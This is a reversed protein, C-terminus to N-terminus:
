NTSPPALAVSVTPSCATFAPMNGGCVSVNASTGALNTPVFLDVQQVGPFGPAPGAYYPQAVFQGDIMASIVGSGSLGTAFIQIISGLAAPHNPGNPSYDQNLVGNQFIGPAFAALAITQPTSAIGNVSVVLETSTKTALATPVVINIQTANSFLIQAPTGDFTVTLGTGAFNSGTITALSGPALPGAVFTAANVASTVAPLPVAPPTAATITLTIPVNRTGALPGADVTITADYTGPTLTGPIADVRVGGNNEGSTPSINLWGSANQYALTATWNLVGGSANHVILYNTQTNSGATATYALSPELVSLSPFYQANCDGLITCDAQPTVSLFRPIPDTATATFVSSVPAFSVNESTQVSAGSFPMLGLFTPFQASEQVNQNADVVEYVALGAGNVLTVPSMADFSVTGSGPAGPTYVPAGGAGNPNNGQVLALLLSSIAGPAYQGGSAPVGFDGGATPEIADSGAIVNPVFIQAGAPFGSYSVLIRTGTDANLGQFGSKSSFADAFGETVRTTGFVEGSALFSAFSAPNSPLRSGTQSCVIKSSFDDYLGEEAEAVTFQNVPTSVITQSNFALTAHVQNSPFPQLENAAARVNSLQLIASGTASLSFSLGNFVLAGPGTIVAPVNVPRPGSGNDVTLVMDTVQNSGNSAVRNTLNVNLFLSLNGSINAAPAGGTCTLVIDGTRETIGESRVLPPQASAQCTVTTQATLLGFSSILLAPLVPSLLHSM